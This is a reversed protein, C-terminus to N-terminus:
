LKVVIRDSVEIELQDDRVVKSVLGHMLAEACLCYIMIISSWVLRYKYLLGVCVSKEVRPM